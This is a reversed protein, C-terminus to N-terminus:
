GIDGETACYGSVAADGGPTRAADRHRAKAGPVATHLASPAATYCLAITRYLQRMANCIAACMGAPNVPRHLRTEHVYTVGRASWANASPGQLPLPLMRDHKRFVRM